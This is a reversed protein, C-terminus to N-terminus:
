TDDGGGGPYVVILSRARLLMRGEPYEGPRVYVAEKVNQERRRRAADRVFM